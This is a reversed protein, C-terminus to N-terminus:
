KEYDAPYLIFDGEYMGYVTELFNMINEKSVMGDYEVPSILQDEGWIENEFYSIYYDNTGKNREYDRKYSEKLYSITEDGINGDLVGKVTKRVAEMLEEAREPQCSFSIFLRGRDLNHKYVDVWASINYAGSLNERVEKILETDLSNQLMSAYYEYGEDIKEKDGFVMIVNTDEGSAFNRAVVKDTSLQKLVVPSYDEVVKREVSALYKAIAPKLAEYDIDGVIYYDYDGNAFRENYLELLEDGDINNVDEEEMIKAREDYANLEQYVEEWFDNERLNKKNRIADITNQKDIQLQTEDLKAETVYAYFIKLMDAPYKSTSSGYFYEGDKGIGNIFSINKNKTFDIYEERTMTGPASSIITDFFEATMLKDTPVYDLGGRSLAGFVVTNEKYKVDKVYVKSGNSLTFLYYDEGEVYKEDVIQGGVPEKTILQGKSEQKEYKGLDIERGAEVEARIANKDLAKYGSYLYYEEIGNFYEEIYKDVDEVKIENLYEMMLNIENEQSIFVDKDFDFNVLNSIINATEMNELSALLENLYDKYYDVSKEFEQQSLGKMIQNLEGFAERIGALEKDKKLDINVEDFGFYDNFKYKYVYISNLNTELSNLKKVYREQLANDFVMQIVNDKLRELQSEDMSYDRAQIFSFQNNRLEKNIYSDEVMLKEFTRKKYEEKDELEEKEEGAFYKKIFAEVEAINEIDGAIYLKMNNPTYWRKYFNQVKDRTFAEISSVLGIPMRELYTSGRFFYQQYFERQEKGVGTDQRWEEIVVGKEKDVEEPDIAMKFGWQHLIDVFKEIDRSQGDLMYVTEDFYTYANLEPGFAVGMKELERILDNSKYKETGNFAMHELFHAIGEEGEKEYLSGAEVKLRASIFNKPKQNPYIFYELGNDLKGKILKEDQILEGFISFSFICILVFIRKM